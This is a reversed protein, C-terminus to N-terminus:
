GRRDRALKKERKKRLEEIKKAIRPALAKLSFRTAARRWAVAFRARERKTFAGPAHKDLCALDHVVGAELARASAPACGKPSDIFAFAPETADLSVLINRWHMDHDVYGSQHMRGILAGLISLGRRRLLPDRAPSGPETASALLAELNMTRPVGLTAICCALLVGFPGRREGYVLPVACPLGREIMMQLSEYERRARSKRWAYRFRVGAKPYLYCKLYIQRSVDDPDNLIRIFSSKGQVLVRGGRHDLAAAFDRVGVRELLEGQGPAVTFRSGM